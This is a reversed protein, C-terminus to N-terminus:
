FAGTGLGARGSERDHGRDHAVPEDGRLSRLFWRVAALWGAGGRRDLTASIEGEGSSDRRHWSLTDGVKLESAPVFRGTGLGSVRWVLHDGTVELEHGSKTTIRLVHKRGNSKVAVIGTVGNADFVKKGVAGAEVLRGIQVLGDPTLRARRLAPLRGGAASRGERRHQVVCALQLGGEARRHPAEARRQLRGGRRRRRFLRGERGVGHDHRRGPRRGPAALDGAGAHRATGRFYKQALINTANMSWTSPVEVGLQEFAVAGTRYDSIRSERREWVVEDYPHKGEETFHRRIGIGLREGAVAM